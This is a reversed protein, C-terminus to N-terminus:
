RQMKELIPLVMEFSPRKGPNENMCIGILRAMHNSVGPPQPLRLGEYAVKMGIEMPELDAFPVQRTQLEWLVVAFSWMDAARVNSEEPRRQLAEPAVWAPHFLKAKEQFSFKADAMSLRGSLDEDIMVHKSNLFFRKVMPNLSHLFGMGRAIDLAFRIAQQQDVVVGGFIPKPYSFASTRLKTAMSSQDKYPIKRMDVGLQQAFNELHDRFEARRCKDLPIDGYKNSVSVLAGHQILDEAIQDFGFFCAYHLATNGHENVFNVDAKNRLLKQVIERHGHSAALHLPTDDGMNTQNVRAGRSLLMDVVNAHGEKAAWHLLSFGHDDGVNMDHETDDLWVRLNFANGDRTWQFVDEIGQTTHVRSLTSTTSQLTM